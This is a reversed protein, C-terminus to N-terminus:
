PTLQQFERIIHFQIITSLGGVFPTPPTDVFRFAYGTSKSITLLFNHPHIIPVGNELRVLRPSSNLRACITM